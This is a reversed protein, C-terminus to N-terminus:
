HSLVHLVINIFENNLAFYLGSFQTRLFLELSSQKWDLKFRCFLVNSISCTGKRFM